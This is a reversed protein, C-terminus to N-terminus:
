SVKVQAFMWPHMVCFYTYDGAEDFRVTFSNVIPFPGQIPVGMIHGPVEESKPIIVGSNIIKTTSNLTTFIDPSTSNLYVTPQGVGNSSAPYWADKNIAVIAKEGTEPSAIFAPEGKNFPPVLKYQSDQPSVVFPLYRDSNTTDDLVFTVTHFDTIPSPSTWRVSEGKNINLNPPSYTFLQNTATSGEGIKVDHIVSSQQQASSTTTSATSTAAIILVAAVVVAGIKFQIM